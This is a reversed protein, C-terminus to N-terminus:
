PGLRDHRGQVSGRGKRSLLVVAVRPKIASLEAVLTKLGAEDNGLTRTKASDDLAIELTGKSVDIGVFILEDANTM